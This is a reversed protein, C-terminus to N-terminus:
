ALFEEKETVHLHDDVADVLLEVNRLYDAFLVDPVLGTVTEGAKLRAIAEFPGPDFPIHATLARLAELKRAPVDTRFLRLSARCLVLLSSLSEVLLDTIARRKGGTLLYRERLLILKSKLESELQWRLNEPDVTLDAVVDDGYLIRNCAQMDGIEIPFVDASRVLRERTFLLPPPNGASAWTRALPALVRLEEVGLRSVVVLVNYDSRKGAHDGAAASGYLMVSVLAPGCAAELRETLAEPTM